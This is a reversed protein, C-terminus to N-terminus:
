EDDLLINKSLKAKRENEVVQADNSVVLKFADFLTRDLTYSHSDKWTESYVQTQIDVMVDKENLTFRIAKGVQPNRKEDM